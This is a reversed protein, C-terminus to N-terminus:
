FENGFGDSTGNVVGAFPPVDSDSGNVVSGMTSYFNVDDYGALSPIFSGVLKTGAAVTVGAGLAETKKSAMLVLGLALVAGSRLKDNAIFKGAFNNAFNAGIGGAVLPLAKKVQKLPNM